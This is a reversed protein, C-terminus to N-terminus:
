KPITLYAGYRRLWQEAKRYEPMISEVKQWFRVGHSRYFLHCCEHIIVYMLVQEPALILVWNIYIDQHIGCSGWRSQTERIRVSRPWRKLEASVKQTYEEVKEQALIKLYSIVESQICSELHSVSISRDFCIVLRQQCVYTLCGGHLDLDLIKSYGQVTIEEGAQFKGPWFLSKNKQSAIYQAKAWLRNKDIFAMIIQHSMGIPAVIELKKEKMRMQLRRVRTSFRIYYPVTCEAFPLYAINEISSTVKAM